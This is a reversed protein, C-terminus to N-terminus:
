SHTDATRSRLTRGTGKFAKLDSKSPSDTNVKNEDIDGGPAEEQPHCSTAVAVIFQLMADLLTFRALLEGSKLDAYLNSVTKPLTVFWNWLWLFLVSPGSSAKSKLESSDKNYSGNRCAAKPVKDRTDGQNETKSDM